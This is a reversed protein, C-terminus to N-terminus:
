MRATLPKRHAFAANWGGVNDCVRSGAAVGNHLFDDLSLVGLPGARRLRPISFPFSLLLTM